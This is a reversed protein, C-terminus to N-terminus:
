YEFFLTNHRVSCDLHVAFYSNGRLRGILANPEELLLPIPPGSIRHIGLGFFCAQIM